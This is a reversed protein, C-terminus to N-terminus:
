RHRRIAEVFEPKWETMKQDVASVNQGSKFADLGHQFAVIYAAVAKQVDAPAVSTNIARLDRVLAETRGVGPPAKEARDMTQGIQLAVRRTNERQM